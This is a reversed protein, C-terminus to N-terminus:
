HLNPIHNGTQYRKVDRLEKYYELLKNNRLETNNNNIKYILAEKWIDFDRKKKSQLPYRDLVKILKLCDEKKRVRYYSSPNKNGYAKGDVLHGFGLGEKIHELTERDDNRLGISFEFTPTQRGKQLWIGFYGEGDAVGSFWYGFDNM